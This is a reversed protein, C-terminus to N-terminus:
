DAMATLVFDAEANLGELIPPAAPTGASGKRLEVVSAVSLRASLGERIFSILTDANAKTNDLIGLRIGSPNVSRAVPFTPTAVAPAEPIVLTVTGSM